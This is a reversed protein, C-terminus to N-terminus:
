EGVVETSAPAPTLIQNVLEAIRISGDVNAGRLVGLMYFLENVPNQPQPNLVGNSVPKSESKPTSTKAL